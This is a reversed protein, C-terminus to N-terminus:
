VLPLVSHEFSRPLDPDSELHIAPGASLKRIVRDYIFLTEDM